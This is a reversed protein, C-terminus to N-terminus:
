YISLNSVPYAWFGTTPENMSNDQQQNINVAQLFLSQNLVSLGCFQATEAEHDFYYLQIHETKIKAHEYCRLM